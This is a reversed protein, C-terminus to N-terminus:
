MIVFHQYVAQAVLSEKQCHCRDHFTALREMVIGTDGCLIEDMCIFFQFFPELCTFINLLFRTLLSEEFGTLMEVFSSPLERFLELRHTWDLWWFFKSITVSRKMNSKQYAM